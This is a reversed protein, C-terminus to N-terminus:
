KTVRRKGRVPVFVHRRYSQLHEFGRKEACVLSRLRIMAAVDEVNPDTKRIKQYEAQLRKVEDDTFLPKRGGGPQRKRAKSNPVAKPPSYQM